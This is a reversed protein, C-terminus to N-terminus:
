GFDPHREVFEKCERDFQNYVSMEKTKAGCEPCQWADGTYDMYKNCRDCKVFIYGDPDAKSLPVDSMESVPVQKARGLRSNKFLLVWNMGNLGM